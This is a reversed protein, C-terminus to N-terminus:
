RHYYMLRLDCAANGKWRFVLRWQDNVRISHCGKLNGKLAELRNAPPERLVNLAEAAHLMLLKRQLVLHLAAPIKRSKGTKWFAELQRDAFSDIMRDGASVTYRM